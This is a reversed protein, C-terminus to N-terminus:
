VETLEVKPNLKKTRKVFEVLENHKKQAENGLTIQRSKLDAIFTIDSHDFDPVKGIKKM